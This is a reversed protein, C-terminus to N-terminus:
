RSPPLQYLPVIRGAAPATAAIRTIPFDKSKTPPNGGAM